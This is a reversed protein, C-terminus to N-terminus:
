RRIKKGLFATVKKSAAKVTYKENEDLLAHLIDACGEFEKSKILQERTFLGETKEQEM